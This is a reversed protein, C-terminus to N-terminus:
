DYLYYLTPEDSEEYTVVAYMERAGSGFKFYPKLWELFKEIDQRNRINARTSLVYAHSIQDYEFYAQSECVGFYYSSGVLPNTFLGLRDLVTRTEFWSGGVLSNITDLVEIPMDRKLRCGLILETYMGM